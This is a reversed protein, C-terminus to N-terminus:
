WTINASQIYFGMGLQSLENHTSTKTYDHANWHFELMIMRMGYQIIQMGIHLQLMILHIEIPCQLM